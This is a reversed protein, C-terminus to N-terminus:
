KKPPQFGYHKPEPIQAVPETFDLGIWGNPAFWAVLESPNGDPGLKWIKLSGPLTEPFVYDSVIVNTSFTGPPPPVPSVSYADAQEFIKLGVATWVKIVRPEGLRGRHRRSAGPAELIRRGIADSLDLM